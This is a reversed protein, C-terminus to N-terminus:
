RRPRQGTRGLLGCLECPESRHHRPCGEVIGLRSLAFDYKVPDEPDLRRLGRTLDLAAQWAPTKRRTLRLRRAILFMHTDLPAVLDRPHLCDWLGLDLGDDPRVVWRLFMTTRKAASTRPDPFFYRPGPRSAGETEAPAEYFALAARRFRAISAALDVRGGSGRVVGRGFLAELTGHQELIGRLMVALQILDRASSWRHRFGGLASAEREPEFERVFRAPHPGTWAFVRELSSCVARANGYSLSAAFFAAIERDDARRFRRPFQLPDSGLSGAGHRRYVRDVAERWGRPPM